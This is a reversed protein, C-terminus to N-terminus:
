PRVEFFSNIAHEIDLKRFRTFGAMEVMARAKSEPLGLTGLGAGDPESMASAMCSMISIGYMLSSMPNKQLNEEFTERAKIDVLLWTGDDKIASRIANMMEQPHTMDHICDFTTILDHSRDEPLRRDRVNHFHANTLGLQSKRAHARELAHVSIDYGHFQSKPFAEAMLCVAIGAGCGVDAAVAGAELKKVVGELAPLGVPILSNRYWPEFSKEIGAAGVAGHADYDYGLGTRFSDPLVKLQEMTQPLRQFMGMGYAPHSGDVLVAAAEPTLLFGGDGQYEILKAAAQNSLWERVWREHLGTVTALQASTIPGAADAMARYLGLHDGLHVMGSTVAGDLKSFLLFSYAKLRDPDIAATM